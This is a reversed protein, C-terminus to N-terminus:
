SEDSKTVTDEAICSGAQLVDSDVLLQKLNNKISLHPLSFTSLRLTLCASKPSRTHSHQVSFSGGCGFGLCL